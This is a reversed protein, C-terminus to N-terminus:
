VNTCLRLHSRGNLFLFRECVCLTRDHGKFCVRDKRAQGKREWHSSRSLSEGLESSLKLTLQQCEMMFLYM